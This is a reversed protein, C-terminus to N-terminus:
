LSFKYTIKTENKNATLTLSDKRDVFIWNYLGSVIAGAIVDRPHHRKADIRSWGVIVALGYPIIAHPLGYRRHIFTAGSFASAAHGSPFSDKKKGEKYDPRKQQTIEKLVVVTLQSAIFSCFFQAPVKYENGYEGEGMAFGLAYAPTVIQLVDGIKRLTLAALTQNITVLIIFMFIYKNKRIM